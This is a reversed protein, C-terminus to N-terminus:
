NSPWIIKDKLYSLLGRNQILDFVMKIESILEQRPVLLRGAFENAQWEFSEYEREPLTLVFDKWEEPSSISIQSYIDRHLVLHGVEHAFSFRTRNQFKEEMYCDNDVVIGTLDRRLFADMDIEAKWNHKPDIYLKLRDQIIKEMDVPLTGEPWYKRFFNDAIGWLKERDIWECKFDSSIPM